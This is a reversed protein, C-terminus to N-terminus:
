KGEKGTIMDEQLRKSTDLIAEFVPIIYEAKVGAKNGIRRLIEEEREKSYVPLNHKIKYEAVDKSLELRKMLADLIEDNLKDIDDRIMDLEM